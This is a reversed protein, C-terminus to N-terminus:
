DSWLCTSRYIDFMAKVKKKRDQNIMRNVKIDAGHLWQLCLRTLSVSILLSQGEEERCEELFSSSLSSSVFSLPATSLAHLTLLPLAILLNLPSSSVPSFIFSSNCFLSIHLENPSRGIVGRQEPDRVRIPPGEPNHM